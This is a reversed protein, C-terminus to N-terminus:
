KKRQQFEKVAQAKLESLPTESFKGQDAEAIREQLKKRLKELKFQQFLEHDEASGIFAVVRGHREILIDEDTLAIDIVEGLRKKVESASIKM